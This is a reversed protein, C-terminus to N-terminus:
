PSKAEKAAPFDLGRVLDLDRTVLKEAQAPTMTFAIVVQEGGPGAVLFFNQVVKLGDMRGPASVRYVWRGGDTPVEGEQVVEGQEWGPTKAMADRFAEPTMHKGPQALEWPTVTAQAVFDGRDLYRLVTHEKTQGVIQWERGYVLDFGIKGDHHYSLATMAAPVDNEPVSILAVDSLTMPQTIAARTVTTTTEVTTAPSAPGQGREDKQKWELASLRHATLDYRYSAQITLKVLAGLDIGSATGTVSVKAINDKVEELKCSLDQATLGEFNCLAQAIENSVKWAAGVTVAQTPLLGALSLTDFHEGTLELEERTLPGAPCYVLVQDPRRQAVVLRREARLSREVKDNGNSITAKATEYARATKQLLGQTGIALVREPFDHTATAALKLAMPKNDKSVRMEGTLEMDLHIHLCDGVQPAETLSYTQAGGSDVVLLTVFVSALIRWGAM